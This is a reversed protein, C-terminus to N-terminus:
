QCQQRPGGGYPQYSNDEPRYSRYRDFCSQIHDRTMVPGSGADVREAVFVPEGQAPYEDVVVEGGPDGAQAGGGDDSFFPSVCPARGAAGYPQYSNDEARYSRYHDACWEVHGDMITIRHEDRPESAVDGALSATTIMDITDGAEDESQGDVTRGAEEPAPEPTRRDTAPRDAVPRAPLRQLGDDNGVRVPESPWMAATDVSPGPRSVPEASFYAIALAIGGGFSVLTLGFGGIFAIFLKM